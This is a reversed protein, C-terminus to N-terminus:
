PPATATDASSSRARSSGTKGAIRASPTRNRDVRQFCRDGGPRELGAGGDDVVDPAELAVGVHRADDGLMIRGDDDHVIALRRDPSRITASTVSNKEGAGKFDGPARANGAMADHEIGADAEALRRLLTDGADGPEVNSVEAQRHEDAGRALAEDNPTAMAVSPAGRRNARRADAPPRFPAAIMRTCSTAGVTCASATAAAM